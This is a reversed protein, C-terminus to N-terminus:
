YELGGGGAISALSCRQLGVVSGAKGVVTGFVCVLLDNCIVVTYIAPIVYLNIASWSFRGSNKKDRRADLNIGRGYQEGQSQSPLLSKGGIERLIPTM